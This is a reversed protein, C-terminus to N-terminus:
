PGLLRHGLRAEPRPRDTTSLVLQPRTPTDDAFRYAVRLHAPVLRRVLAELQKLADDLGAGCRRRLATESELVITCWAQEAFDRPVLAPLAGRSVAPLDTRAMVLGGLRASGLVAPCPGAREVVQVTWGLLAAVADIVGQKTGRRLHRQASGAVWARRVGLPTSEDLPDGLWHGFWRLAEKPCSEVAFWSAREAIRRQLDADLSHMVLLFRALFSPPHHAGVAPARADLVAPLHVGLGETAVCLVLPGGEVGPAIPGAGNTPRERGGAEPAAAPAEASWRSRGGNWELAVVRGEAAAEACLVWRIEIPGAWVPALAAAAADPFWREDVIVAFREAWGPRPSM